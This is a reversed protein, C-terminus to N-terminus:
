DTTTSHASLANGVVQLLQKPHYPKVIADCFGYEKFSAMVPANSYGSSVIVKAQPNISLIEKATEQGGMGGPVTLDMITLDFPQNRAISEKYLRVAEAGDKACIVEHGGLSLTEEALKRVMEEDDMVLIRAPRGSQNTKETEQNPLLSTKESAPLFISFVTGKGPKSAVEIHGGHKTIISHCIALGLGIGQIKTSFYPDFIREVVDAPIGIGTDSIVIKVYKRDAALNINNVASAANECSVSITGGDPMAQTANIIINQIVQSIQGRDIEVLWLDDPFSFKCAVPKGHLVFRASDEIVEQLSATEKVPEGGRSFTLLQHTLSKARLSATEARSLLKRTKEQMSEDLLALSINGLIAALINNFDHAIGGALVGVSELKKTKLLEEEMRNKETVDRFVVVVGIIESNMDRIPAGSDAISRIAGDKAILASHYPLEVIRGTALVKPVPNESPTKTKEDIIALVEEIPRGVAETQKWGTLNEAVKNILVVRGSIDTTIVGDGISRLTVALRERESVLATESRKRATIDQFSEVIGILKGNADLFPRATVIFELTEDETKKFMELVVEKKGELIQKLPCQDTDCYAGPRSEFCKATEPMGEAKPWIAYYAKNAQIPVFDVGTICIPNASDLVNRLTDTTKELEATRDAVLAELNNQYKEIQLHVKQFRHFYIGFAFIVIFTATNIAGSFPSISHWIDDKHNFLLIQKVLHGFSRSIAFFVIAITLLFIYNRFIDEHKRKTWKWSLLACYVAIIVTLISGVIDDAVVPTWSVIM